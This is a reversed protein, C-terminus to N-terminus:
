DTRKWGKMVVPSVQQSLKMGRPDSARGSAVVKTVRRADGVV